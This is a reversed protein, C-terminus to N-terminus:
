INQDKEEFSFCFKLHLKKKEIEDIYNKKKKEKQFFMQIYFVHGINNRKKKM